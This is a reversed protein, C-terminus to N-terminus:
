EKQRSITARRSSYKVPATAKLDRRRRCQRARMCGTWEHMLFYFYFINYNLGAAAAARAVYRYVIRVDDRPQHYRTLLLYLLLLSSSSSSLLLARRNSPPVPQAWVGERCSVFSSAHEDRTNKLLTVVHARADWGGGEEHDKSSRLARERVASIHACWRVGGTNTASISTRRRPRFLSSLTPLFFFFISTFFDFPSYTRLLLTLFLFCCRSCGRVRRHVYINM